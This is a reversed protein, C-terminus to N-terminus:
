HVDYGEERPIGVVHDALEETGVPISKYSSGTKSGQRHKVDNISEPKRHLVSLGATILAIGHSGTRLAHLPCRLVHEHETDDDDESQQEVEEVEPVVHHECLQCADCHSVMRGVTIGVDHVCERTRHIYHEVDYPEHSEPEVECVSEPASHLSESPVSLNPVAAPLDDTDRIRREEAEAEENYHQPESSFSKAAAALLM